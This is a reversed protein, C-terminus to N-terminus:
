AYAPFASSCESLFLCSQLPRHFTGCPLSIGAFGAARNESVTKILIDDTREKMKEEPIREGSFFEALTIGLEDCLPKYLSPDPLNRGNEWNGVTRDSVGLRESLAQQTMGAERRCGAIFKGIKKQDM